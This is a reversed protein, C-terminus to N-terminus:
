PAHADWSMGLAISAFALTRPQIGSSSPLFWWM